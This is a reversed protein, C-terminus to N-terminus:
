TLCIGEKTEKVVDMALRFGRAEYDESGRDMIDSYRYTVRCFWAEEIFTGGRLVREDWAIRCIFDDRDRMKNRKVEERWTDQRPGQPNHKPSYLYYDWDSVDNCWEEVNGSMDYLGLENPQKCAVPHLVGGSNGSHWAVEDINDSGSFLHGQSKNGGRAAYEWEAETPLRFALGTLSNLKEVFRVADMWSVGTVPLDGLGDNTSIGKMVAEWLGRTVVTEGIYFSPLSVEHAPREDEGATEWPADSPVGMTFTGGEVYIMKFTQNAINITM